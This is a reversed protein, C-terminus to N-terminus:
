CQAKIRWVSDPGQTLPGGEKCGSLIDLMDDIKKGGTGLVGWKGYHQDRCAQVIRKAKSLTSADVVISNKQKFSTFFDEINKRCVNKNISQNDLIDGLINDKRRLTSQKNPDTYGAASSTQESVVQKNETSTKKLDYKMMLKVRELAEEPSYKPQVM